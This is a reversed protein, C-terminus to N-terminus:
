PWWNELVKKPCTNLNWPIGTSKIKFNSSKGPSYSGHLLTLKPNATANFIFWQGCYDSNICNPMKSPWINILQLRTNEGNCFVLVVSLDIIQTYHWCLTTVIINLYLMWRWWHDHYEVTGFFSQPINYCLYKQFDWKKNM